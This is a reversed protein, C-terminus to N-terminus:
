FNQCSMCQYKSGCFSCTEVGQCFDFLDDHEFDCKNSIAIFAEKLLENELKKKNENNVSSKEIELFLNNLINKYKVNYPYKFTKVIEDNKKSNFLFKEKNETNSLRFVINPGIKTLMIQFNPIDHCYYKTNKCTWKLSQPTRTKNYLLDIIAYLKEDNM